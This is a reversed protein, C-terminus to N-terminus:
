QDSEGELYTRRIIDAMKKFDINKRKSEMNELEKLKEEIITLMKEKEAPDVFYQRLKRDLDEEDGEGLLESLSVFGGDPTRQQAKARVLFHKVAYELANNLYSEIEYDNKTLDIPNTNTLLSKYVDSVIEECDTNLDEGTEKLPSNKLRYRAWHLLYDNYREYVETVIANRELTEAPIEEIKKIKGTEMSM